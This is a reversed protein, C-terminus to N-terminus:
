GDQGGAILELAPQYSAEGVVDVTHSTQALVLPEVGSALRFDGPWHTIPGPPPWSLPANEGLLRKLFGV